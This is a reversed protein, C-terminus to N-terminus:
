FFVTGAHRKRLAEELPTIEHEIDDVFAVQPGILM